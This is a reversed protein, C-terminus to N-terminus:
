NQHHQKTAARTLASISSLTMDSDSALLVLHVLPDPPVTNATILAGARILPKGMNGMKYLYNEQVHWNKFGTEVM